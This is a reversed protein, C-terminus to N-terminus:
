NERLQHLGDLIGSHAEGQFVHGLDTISLEPVHLKTKQFM